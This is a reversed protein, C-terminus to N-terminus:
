REYKDKDVHIADIFTYGEKAIKMGLRLAEIFQYGSFLDRNLTADEPYECLDYAFFDVEGIEDDKTESWIRHIHNEYDENDYFNLIFSKSM